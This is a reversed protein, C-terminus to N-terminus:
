GLHLVEYKDKTFKEKDWIMLHKIDKLFLM